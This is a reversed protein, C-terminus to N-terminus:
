KTIPEVIYVKENFLEQRAELQKRMEEDMEDQETYIRSLTHVFGTQYSPEKKVDKTAQGYLHVGDTYLIGVGNTGYNGYLIFEKTIRNYCILSAHKISIWIKDGGETAVFSEMLKQEKLSEETENPFIEKIVELLDIVEEAETALNKIFIKTNEYGKRETYYFEDGVLCYMSIAESLVKQNYFDDKHILCINYGDTSSINYDNWWLDAGQSSDEMAETADFTLIDFKIIKSNEDNPNPISYSFHIGTEKVALSYISGAGDIGEGPRYVFEVMGTAPTYCYIDGEEIGEIEYTDYFDVVFYLSGEYICLNKAPLSVALKAEGDKIRYVYWDQNFNVFYTVGTTEDVCFITKGRMQNMANYLKASKVKKQPIVECLGEIVVKEETEDDDEKKEEVPTELPMFAGTTIIPISEEINEETTLQCGTMCLFIFSIFYFLKRM